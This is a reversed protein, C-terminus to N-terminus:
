DCTATSDNGECLRNGCAQLRADLADVECQPLAPNYSIELVAVSELASSDGLTALAPNGNITLQNSV